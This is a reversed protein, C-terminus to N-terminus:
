TFIIWNGVITPQVNNHAGDGGTSGGAAGGSNSSVIAAAGGFGGVGTYTPGTHTHAPIKDVTLTDSQSGAAAALTAAGTFGPSVGSGLRGAAAGGMNDAGAPVRGRMDPLNFTTSGDGVGWTAGIKAFLAAYTTRSVEQGYCLLSTAPINAEIGGFFFMCGTLPNGAALASFTLTGVTATTASLGVVTLTSGDFTLNASGALNGGSNFQVQTDSGAATGASVVMGRSTGDCSVGITGGSPVAITAGGAASKIGVVQGGTTSNSVFWQGGVGNPVVYTIAATPAGSIKLTLPIYDSSSLTQDGSLATANLSTSGGLAADIGNWNANVPVDWSDIDANHAPTYLAKNATQPDPM